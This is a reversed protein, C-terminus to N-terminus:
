RLQNKRYGDSSPPLSSNQSNKGIQARLEEIHERLQQNETGLCTNDEQLCTIEKRLRTIESKQLTFKKLLGASYKREGTLLSKLHLIEAQQTDITKTYEM